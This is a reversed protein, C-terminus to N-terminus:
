ARPAPTRTRLMVTGAARDHLPRGTSDPILAPIVVALLLTRVLVWHVRPRGGDGARVVAIGALRMGPTQGAVSVFVLEIVLFAVYSILGYGAHGPRHGSIVSILDALLGDVLFAFLRLGFTAQPRDQWQAAPTV